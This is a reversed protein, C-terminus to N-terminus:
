MGAKALLSEAEAATMPGAHKARIV